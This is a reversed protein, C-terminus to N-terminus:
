GLPNAFMNIANDPMTTGIGINALGNNAMTVGIDPMGTGIGVNAPTSFNFSFYIDGNSWKELKKNYM